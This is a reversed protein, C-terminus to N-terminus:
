RLGHGEARDLRDRLAQADRRAGDTAPDLSAFQHRVPEAAGHADGIAIEEGKQGDV